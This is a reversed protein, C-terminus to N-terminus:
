PKQLRVCHIVILYVAPKRRFDMKINLDALFSTVSASSNFISPSLTTPQILSCNRALKDVQVFYKLCLEMPPIKDIYKYGNTTIKPTNSFQRIAYAVSLYFEDQTYLANDGSNPPYPM